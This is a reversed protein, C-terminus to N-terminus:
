EDIDPMEEESNEDTSNVNEMEENSNNQDSGYFDPNHIRMDADDNESSHFEDIDDVDDNNSEIYNPNVLGDNDDNSDDVDAIENVDSSDNVDRESSRLSINVDSDCSQVDVVSMDSESNSIDSEKLKQTRIQGDSEDSLAMVDDGDDDEDRKSEDDDNDSVVVITAINRDNDDEEEEEEEEEEEGAARGYGFPQGAGSHPYLYTGVIDEDKLLSPHDSYSDVSEAESEIYRGSNQVDFNAEDDDDDDDEVNDVYQIKSVEILSNVDSEFLKMDPHNIMFDRSKIVIDIVDNPAKSCNECLLAFAKKGSPKDYNNINLIQSNISVLIQILEFLEYSRCEKCIRHLFTNGFKDQFTVDVNSFMIKFSNLNPFLDINKLLSYMANMVIEENIHPNSMILEIIKYSNNCSIPMDLITPSLTIDFRANNFFHYVQEYSQQSLVELIPNSLNPDVEPLSLLTDISKEKMCECAIKLPTSENRDLKNVFSEFSNSQSNNESLIQDYLPEKNNITDSKSQVNGAAINETNKQDKSDVKESSDVKETLNVKETDVKESPNVKETLNDKEKKVKEPKTQDILYQLLRFNDNICCIHLLNQFDRNQTKFILDPDKKICLSLLYKFIDNQLNFCCSILMNKNMNYNLIDNLIPDILNDFHNVAKAIMLVGNQFASLTFHQFDNIKKIVYDLTKFNSFFLIKDILKDANLKQFKSEILWEFLEHHHYMIAFSLTNDFSINNPANELSHIIATSGGCIAYKVVQSTFFAHNLNLYNFIKEAGFFASLCILSCSGSLTTYEDSKDIKKNIDFDAKNSIEIFKELDDNQIIKFLKSDDDSDNEVKEIGEEKKRYFDVLTSMESTVHPSKYSNSNMVDEMSVNKLKFILEFFLPRKLPRAFYFSFLIRCITSHGFHDVNEDIYNLVNDFSNENLQFIMYELFLLDKVEPTESFDTQYAQIKYYVEDLFATLTDIQLFNSLLHLPLRNKENIVFNIGLFLCSLVRIDIRDIDKKHELDIESSSTSYHDKQPYRSIFNKIVPSLISAVEKNCPIKKKGIRIQFDSLHPRCPHHFEWM